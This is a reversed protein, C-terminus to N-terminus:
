TRLHIVDGVEINVVAGSDLRVELRADTDVGVAVGELLRGDTMEVRVRCGITSLHRVYEDRLASSPLAELRDVDPLMMRLLELAGRSNTTNPALCAAGAPAWHVNVGIGVVVFDTGAQALVGAVKAGDLLLDNPWKIDPLVGFLSGCASRAALGVIHTFHHASGVDHGRFLISVLLNTGPPAEWTRDLRGRGTTQYDAVLVSHHPAGEHALSLLDANTSGTEAVHTVTWGEPWAGQLSNADIDAM